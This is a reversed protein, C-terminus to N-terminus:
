VTFLKPNVLYNRVNKKLRTRRAQLNKIYSALFKDTAEWTKWDKIISYGATDSAIPVGESIYRNIAKRLSRDTIAFRKRVQHLLEKRSITKNVSLLLIIAKKM